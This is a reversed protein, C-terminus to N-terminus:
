ISKPALVVRPSIFHSTNTTGGNKMALKSACEFNPLLTDYRDDLSLSNIDNSSNDTKQKEKTEYSSRYLTINSITSVSFQM